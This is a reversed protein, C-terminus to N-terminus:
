ATIGVIYSFISSLVVVPQLYRVKCIDCVNDVSLGDRENIGTRNCPWHTVGCKKKKKRIERRNCTRGGLSGFGRHFGDNIM